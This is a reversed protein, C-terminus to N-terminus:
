IHMFDQPFFDHPAPALIISVTKEAIIKVAVSASRPAASIALFNDLALDTRSETSHLEGVLLVITQNVVATIGHGNIAVSNFHRGGSQATRKISNKLHWVGVLSWTRTSRSTL